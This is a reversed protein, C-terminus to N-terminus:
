IEKLLQYNNFKFFELMMNRIHQEGEGFYFPTKEKNTIHQPLNKRTIKKFKKIM